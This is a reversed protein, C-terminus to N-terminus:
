LSYGAGEPVRYIPVGDAKGVLRRELQKCSGRRACAKSKFRSDGMVRRGCGCECTRREAVRIYVAATGASSNPVPNPDTRLVLARNM